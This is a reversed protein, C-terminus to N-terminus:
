LKRPVAHSAPREALVPAIEAMFLNSGCMCWQVDCRSCRHDSAAENEERDKDRCGACASIVCGKGHDNMRHGHRLTRAENAEINALERMLRREEMRVDLLKFAVMEKSKAVEELESQLEIDSRM